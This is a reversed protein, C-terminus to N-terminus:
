CSGVRLAALAEIGQGSMRRSWESPTGYFLALVAAM